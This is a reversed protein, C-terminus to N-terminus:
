APVPCRTPPTYRLALSIWQRWCFRTGGYGVETGSMRCRSSGGYGMGTGCPAFFISRGYGTEPGCMACRVGRENPGSM